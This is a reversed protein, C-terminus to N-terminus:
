AVDLGIERLRGEGRERKRRAYAVVSALMRTKESRLETSGEPVREQVYGQGIAGNYLRSGKQTRILITSHGDPSGLGGISLDAYDSAFETCALCAPRAIGRVVELPVRRTSGDRLLFSVDEHVTLGGIDSLDIGVSEKLEERGPRDFRLQGMCFMGLTYGIVHAPSVGLCQMKRITRIQCPTGVVAVCSLQMSELEKLAPLLSSYTTSEGTYEQVDGVALHSSAASLIEKRTTAIVHERRVVGTRVPVVVGQVLYNELLYLLLATAVGGDTGTERVAQKAARACTISQYAGIPLRWEYRRRVEADLDRTLPCILYCIGCALCTGEDAYVPYGGQDVTLAGLM